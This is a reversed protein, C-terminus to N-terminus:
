FLKCVEKEEVLRSPLIAVIGGLGGVLFAGSVSFAGAFGLSVAHDKV